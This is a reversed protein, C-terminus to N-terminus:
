SPSRKSAQSFIRFTEADKKIPSYQSGNLNCSVKVLSYEVNETYIAFTVRFVELFNLVWQCDSQPFQEYYRILDAISAELYPHSNPSILVVKLLIIALTLSSGQSLVLTFLPSPTQKDESMLLDIVRDCTRLVLSYDIPNADDELYLNRLRQKLQTKIQEAVPHHKVTFVLYEALSKKFNSYNLEKVQALFLRALQRYNFRGNRAVIATILRLVEDGLATPNKPRHQTSRGSQSHATYMALEFKFKEKLRRAVTRAAQRQEVPNSPNTYQPVLLYPMYRTAWGKSANFARQEEALRLAFLEIERFDQSVIFNHLWHRLRKITPSLSHKELSPDQFLKVLNQVAEHQRAMEWNNILIYCCRKLTNAFEQENNAFLIVQLAAISDPNLANAHEVFIRKFEELIDSPPWSKVMDLLYNFIYQQAQFLSQDSWNRSNYYSQSFNSAM